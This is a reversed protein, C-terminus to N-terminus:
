VSGAERASASVIPLTFWFVSGGTKSPAYGIRGGHEKIISQCVSLGLGMGAPKTTFFPSFMREAAEKTVGPGHDLVSVRVHDPEELETRIVIGAGNSGADTTVDFANRVFNLIVQQIQVRDVASTPLPETLELQVRTDNRRADIDILSMLDKILDNCSVLKREASGRRALSRMRRIVAGARHAQEAVEQLAYRLRSADPPDRALLRLCAEAYSSIASLPQNLEHALGATMEGMTGLRGAHALREKLEELEHQQELASTKDEFLYVAFSDAASPARVPAAHVAVNRCGGDVALMRHSANIAPIEGEILRRHEKNAGRREPLQVHDFLRRGVIETASAGILRAAAQNALTIVGERNVIYIGMPALDFIQRLTEEDSRLREQTARLETVDRGSSLVGVSHGAGDELRQNHFALRMQEGQATVVFNEFYDAPSPNETLVRSFVDELEERQAPPVVTEFWSKGLLDTERYGLLECGKRNLMTVRGERDLSVVIEEVLDLCTRMLKAEDTGRAHPMAPEGIDSFIGAWSHERRDDVAGGVCRLRRAPADALRFDVSIESGASATRFARAFAARDNEVVRSLFDGLGLPTPSRAFAGFAGDPGSELQLRDIDPRWRWAGAVVGRELALRLQDAAPQRSPRRLKRLVRGLPTPL